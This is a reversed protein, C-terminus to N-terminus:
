IKSLEDTLYCAATQVNVNMVSSCLDEAYIIAEHIKQARGRSIMSALAESDKDACGALSSSSGMIQIVTSDRIVCDLMNLVKRFDERNKYSSLIKLVTYSDSSILASSIGRVATCLEFMEGKELFSVCKGINGHYASVAQLIDEESYKDMDRLADICEERSCEGTGVTVTRSIITSLFASQSKATFIFYAHDPPEEVIKLLANQATINLKEGDPIIYFKADTDNPMIYADAVINERINKVSYGGSSLDGSLWIVDPHSDNEVRRCERCVGCPEGEPSPSSCLRAMAIYKAATKRGSGEDGVIIFGHSFRGSSKMSSSLEKIHKKSYLKM